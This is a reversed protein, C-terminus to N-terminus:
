QSSEFLNGKNHGERSAGHFLSSPSASILVTLNHSAEQRLFGQIEKVAVTPVYKNEAVNISCNKLM